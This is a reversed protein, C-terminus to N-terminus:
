EPCGAPAAEPYFTVVCDTEDLFQCGNTIGSWHDVCGQVSGEDYEACQTTYSARLFNPCPRLTKTCNMLRAADDVAARMAECAQAESIRIGNPEPRLRGDDVGGAGTSSGDDDDEATEVTCATAAVLMATAGAAVMKLWGAM